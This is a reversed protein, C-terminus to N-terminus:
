QESVVMFEQKPVGVREHMATIFREAEERSDFDIVDIIEFAGTKYHKVAVKYKNM